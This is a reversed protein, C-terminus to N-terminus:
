NIINRNIYKILHLIKLEENKDINFLQFLEKEYKYNIGNRPINKEKCYRIIELILESKTWYIKINNLNYKKELFFKFKENIKVIENLKNKNKDKIKEIYENM